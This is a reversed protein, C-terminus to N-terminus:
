IYKKLFINKFLWQHFQMHYKQWNYSLNGSLFISLIFWIIQKQRVKGM